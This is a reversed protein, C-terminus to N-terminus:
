GPLKPNFNDRCPIPADFTPYTNHPTPPPPPTPPPTSSTSPTSSSLPLPLPPLPTAMFKKIRSLHRRPHQRLERYMDIKRQMHYCSLLSDVSSKMQGNINNVGLAKAKLFLVRQLTRETRQLELAKTKNTKTQRRHAVNGFAFTPTSHTHNASQPRQKAPSHRHQHLYARRSLRTTSSSAQIKKNHQNLMHKAKQSLAKNSKSAVIKQQLKNWDKIISSSDTSYFKSFLDREGDANGYDDRKV